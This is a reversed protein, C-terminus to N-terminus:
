RLTLNNPQQDCVMIMFNLSVSGGENQHLHILKNLVRPGPCSLLKDVHDASALGDSDVDVDISDDVM